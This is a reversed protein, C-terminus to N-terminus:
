RREGPAPRRSRRLQAWDRCPPRGLRYLGRFPPHHHRRITTGAGARLLAPRHAPRRDLHQWQRLVDLVIGDRKSCDLLADAVLGVPKVTPHMALEADREGGLLNAGAYTWVNTRYRGHRGLEINNIHPATGNKYVLVLEHKSRYLSGMGGNTKNWVCINKLESYARG